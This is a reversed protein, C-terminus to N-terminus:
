FLTKYNCNVKLCLSYAQKISKIKLTVQEICFYFCGLIIELPIPLNVAVM